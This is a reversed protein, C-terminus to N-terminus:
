GYDLIMKVELHPTDLAAIPTGAFTSELAGLFWIVGTRGEVLVDPRGKM